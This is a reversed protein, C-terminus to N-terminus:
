KPNVKGFGSIRQTLSPSGSYSVIGTGSIVVDLKDSVDLEVKGSGSIALKAQKAKLGSADVEGLGSIKIDLTEVDGYFFLNGTGYITAALSNRASVSITSSGASTISVKKSALEKANLNAAGSVNISLADTEGILLVDGAGGIKIDTSETKLEVEGKVSGFVNFVLKKIELSGDSELAVSSNLEVNLKEGPPLYVDLALIDSSYLRGRKASVKLTSNNGVLKFERLINSDATFMAKSSTSNHFTLRLPSSGPALFLDEVVIKEIAKDFAVETSAEASDGNVIVPLKLHKLGSTLSFYCGSLYLPLSLLIAFALLRVYSRKM